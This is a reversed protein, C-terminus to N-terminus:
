SNSYSRRGTLAGGENRSAGPKAFSRQSNGSRNGGNSPRNGNGGGNGGARRAEGPKWGNPKRANSRPAGAAPTRKPEYGEVIDVPIPQKTFREIRRVHMSEAHNVLSVAIGNRGARGTRGIRHV